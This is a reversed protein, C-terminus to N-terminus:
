DLEHVGSKAAEHDQEQKEKLNEIVGLSRVYNQPQEWRWEM